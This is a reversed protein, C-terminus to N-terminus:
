KDQGAMAPPISRREAWTKSVIAQNKRLVPKTKRQRAFNNEEAFNSRVCVQV